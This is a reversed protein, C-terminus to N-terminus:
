LKLLSRRVNSNKWSAPSAKLFTAESLFKGRMTECAPMPIARRSGGCCRRRCLRTELGPWACLRIPTINWPQSLRMTMWQSIRMGGWGLGVMTDAGGASFAAGLGGVLLTAVGELLSLLGAIIALIGGAKIM